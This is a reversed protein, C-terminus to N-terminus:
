TISSTRVATVIFNVTKPVHCWTTQYIMVLIKSCGLPEMKLHTFLHSSTGQFCQYNGYIRSDLGCRMKAARYQEYVPEIM